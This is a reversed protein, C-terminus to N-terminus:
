RAGAASGGGVSEADGGLMFPKGVRRKLQAKYSEALESLAVRMDEDTQSQALRECRDIQEQLDIEQRVPM